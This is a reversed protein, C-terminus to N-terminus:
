PAIWVGIGLGIILLDLTLWDPIRQQPVSQTRRAESNQGRPGRALILQNVLHPRAKV